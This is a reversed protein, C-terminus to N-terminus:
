EDIKGMIIEFLNKLQMEFQKMGKKVELKDMFRKNINAVVRDILAQLKEDHEELQEVSVKVKLQDKFTQIAEITELKLREM